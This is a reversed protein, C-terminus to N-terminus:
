YEYLIIIYNLIFSSYTHFIYNLFWLFWIHFVYCIKVCWSLFLIFLSYLSCFQMVILANAVKALSNICSILIGIPIDLTRFLAELFPNPNNILVLIPFFSIFYNISSLLSLFLSILFFISLLSLSLFFFSSHLIDYVNLAPVSTFFLVFVLISIWSNLIM